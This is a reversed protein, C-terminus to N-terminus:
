AHRCRAERPDAVGGIRWRIPEGLRHIVESRETMPRCRAERADAVGGIRWRIPEGLRHIVESRETM